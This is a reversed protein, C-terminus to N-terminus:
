VNGGAQRLQNTESLDLKSCAGVVGNWGGDVDRGVARASPYWRMKDKGCPRWYWPIDYTSCIILTAYGLCASLHAVPGDTIVLGDFFKLMSALRLLDAMNGELIPPTGCTKELHVLIEASPERLLVKSGPLAQLLAEPDPGGSGEELWIGIRPSDADHQGDLRYESPLEPCDPELSPMPPHLPTARVLAPLGELLVATEDPAIDRSLEINEAATVESIGPLARFFSAHEPLCLVRLFDKCDTLFPKILRSAMLAGSLDVVILALRSSSVALFGDGFGASTSRQDGDAAAEATQWATKWEGLEFLIEAEVRRADLAASGKAIESAQRITALATEPKGGRRLLTALGMLPEPLEPALESATEFAALAAGFDGCHLNAFGRLVHIQADAPATAVARELLSVAGGFKGLEMRVAALQALLHPTDPEELRALELCREAKRGQGDELLIAGMGALAGVHHPEAKLVQRFAHAAKSSNGQLRDIEGLRYIAETSKPARRVAELAADRAKEIEQMSLLLQSLASPAEFNAPDLRMARRLCHEADKSRQEIQHAAALGILLEANEPDGELAQAFIKLAKRSDGARLAIMGLGQLAHFEAGPQELIEMFLSKAATDAGRSLHRRAADLIESVGVATESETLARDM